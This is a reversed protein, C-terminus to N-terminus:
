RTYFGACGGTQWGAVTCGRQATVPTRKVKKLVSSVARPELRPEKCAKTFGLLLIRGYVGTWLCVYIFIHLRM